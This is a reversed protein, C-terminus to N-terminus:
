RSEENQQDFSRVTNVLRRVLLPDLEEFSKSIGTAALYCDSYPLYDVVNEPTIGSAIALPFDGLATKMRRIKEVSAAIGTGAGSTTVVDKFARARVAASELHNILFVGDAQAEMAIAVNRLTQKLSAVHVVPLVVHGRPFVERFRSM